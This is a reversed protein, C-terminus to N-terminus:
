LLIELEKKTEFKSSIPYCSSVFEPVLNKLLIYLEEEDNSHCATELLQLTELLERWDHSRFRAKLLKEHATPVLKESEHFLEEFLKEGPRLGTYQIKIEEGPQHGALKIMQEALYSIKIPEGMDLVFIEGGHGNIMAQLILQSAEPITMFYRKIDPHTVTVPGGQQIQKQFLPVVSGASGLVNGFRVTIFQTNVRANFNQCFIEAVRKTAGMVNTPNVAKDTSILIFKEVQARASIEAIVQTGIVNNLVAVRVQDELLPVHKYAAAHFVFHPKFTSFCADIGKYDTVSLLGIKVPIDPYQLRIELEIQYLNYESHELIFLEKPHLAMIQRCLESGISGGGGSVLVRKGQISYTIKDWELCVLDRGLLDDLNVERLASIAVQGAALASLSPLTRFPLRCGECYNVIRRMDASCASPIAILILDIRHIVVLKSLQSLTGLVAVGHIEMGYRNSNDDIFGIPWFTNTRKLDRVLVEGAAGAGIILVRKVANARGPIVKEEHYARNVLRASCLFTLLIMAYLPLISRPIHNLLSTMYFVPLVLIIAVVVSKIIRVIDKMSTFCWLGRYVKFYYFCTVQMILVAILALSSYDMSFSRMNSRLWYAGYWAMPIATIDFLLVPLKKYLKLLFGKFYSVEM